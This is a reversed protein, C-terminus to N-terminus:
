ELEAVRAEWIEALEALEAKLRDFEERLEALKEASRYVNADGFQPEIAACRAERQMIEEELQEFKLKGFRTASAAPKTPPKTRGGGSRAERPKTAAEAERAAEAQEAELLDIYRSYNGIVLRHGDPRIVLLQDVIADLFYRDHSVVIITGPFERLAEELAECSPIDLHNTPEDLLLTDPQNLILRLMRVRSQEGGSLESIRKFADDGRFLFRGLRSRVQQESLYPHAQQIEQVVTNEPTLERVDQAFYGPRAKPDWALEGADPALQGLLIKLLTSKGTGNPGTIGLRVGAKLTLNLGAFLRKEGFSKALGEGRLVEGARSASDGFDLSLATREEPRSTVFEGAALRRELRKLRGKAEATRQTGMHQEIFAREKAIFEQDQEFQRAQTLRQVDRIRVYNSYNGSYSTLKADYLEVIRTALRDLLYRDHSVILAGGRHKSLYQELWRVADIDLHNTPEDLLLYTQEQLLLKALAARSKQGGSLAAVPLKLDTASFRLGALVEQVRQEIQYGGAAEFRATLKDYEALLDPLHDGAHHEAIRESLAHMKQELALLDAFASLVEDHLTRGLEVEPEQALYGVPTGRAIAVQGADATMKGAILKFLTTKGAGNPGILGCIEGPHLELDAHDLIIKSGLQKLVSQLRIAAM